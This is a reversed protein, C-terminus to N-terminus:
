SKRKSCVYDLTPTEKIFPSSRKRTERKIFQLKKGM